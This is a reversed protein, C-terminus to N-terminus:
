NCNWLINNKKVKLHKWGSTFSGVQGSHEYYFRDGDRLRLFQDAILCEYTQGIGQSRTESSELFLGAYLDIDEVDEYLGKLM